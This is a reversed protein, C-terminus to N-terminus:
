LHARTLNVKTVTLQEFLIYRKRQGEVEGMPPRDPAGLSFSPIYYYM